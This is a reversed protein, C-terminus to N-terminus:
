GVDEEKIFIGDVMKGKRNRIEDYAEMLCESLDTGLMKSLIILTVLVDGIDDRAAGYRGKAINDALEGMESVTKIFQARPDPTDFIGRENAWRLVSREYLELSM